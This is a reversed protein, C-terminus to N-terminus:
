IQGNRLAVDNGIVMTNTGSAAPLKLKLNVISNILGLGIGCGSAGPIAFANDVNTNGRVIITYQDPTEFTGFSGSIPRNPAPPNTTGTILNVRVPNSDSGIKCGPGIIPNTLELKLPISLNLNGADLRIASTSGALKATATVANGPLPFNIGLLGGPVQIPKSFVGTTGRPPVFEAQGAVDRLGGRINFSEGIPVRFGKIDLYGSRSQIDVCFFLNPTGRPCDSFNPYAAMASGTSAFLSASAITAAAVALRNRMKM